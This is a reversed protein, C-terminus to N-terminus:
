IGRMDERFAAGFPLKGPNKAKYRMRISMRIFQAMSEGEEAAAERLALYESPSLLMFFKIDTM